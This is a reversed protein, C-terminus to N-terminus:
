AKKSSRRGRGGRRSSRPKPDPTESTEGRVEGAPSPSLAEGQNVEESSSPTPAEIAEGQVEAVPSPTESTEPAEASAAKAEEEAKKRAAARERDARRQAERREQDRRQQEQREQEKRQEEEKRQQEKRQQEKREEEKRQQEKRQQEIRDSRREHRDGPRFGELWLQLPKELTVSEREQVDQMWQRGAAMQLYHYQRTYQDLVKLDEMTLVMPRQPEYVQRWTRDDIKNVRQLDDCMGLSRIGVSADNTLLLVKKGEAFLEVTRRIIAPDAFAAHHSESGIGEIRLRNEKQQALMLRKALRAAANRCVAEDTWDAEKYSVPELVSAFRDVEEYTESMIMFRSGIRKMMKSISELQREFQLRANVKPDSHSSTHGVQLELWINTDSLVIDYDLVNRLIGELIQSRTIAEEYTLQQIQQDNLLPIRAGQNVLDCFDHVTIDKSIERPKAQVPKPKAVAAKPEQEVALPAEAEPKHIEPTEQIDQSEAKVVETPKDAKEAKVKKSRAPRSPKPKEQEQSAPVAAATVEKEENGNEKAPAEVKKRSRAATKKRPAAEITKSPAEANVKKTATM